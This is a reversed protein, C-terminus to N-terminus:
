GADRLRRELRRAVAFVLKDAGRRGAIQVGFPVGDVTGVPLSAAPQGSVNFPATFAGLASAARFCPEADLGDWEGVRPPRRAITPLVWLDADAFWADVRGTMADNLRKAETRDVTRGIGRLWRTTGQLARENLIPVNAALRGFVPLFDDIRGELADGDTIRHGDEELWRAVRRVGEAITPDVEVLASTVGVRVSLQPVDDDLAARLDGQVPAGCLADMAAASDEVTRSVVGAVSLGVVDFQGYFDPTLGRSAKFGFLGCLSAPIRISGGGDAAHAIPLMESGVAAGAGGSSGGAYYDADHPNRTPPQLDTHVVPMLALESTSTKGTMVFGAARFRKVVPSDFPTWVWKLARSGVRLRTFRMPDNDKIAFPVGWFAPLPDPWGAHNADIRRTHKKARDLTLEVFASLKPDERRINAAFLDLLEEAGIERRRIAAALTLASDATTVM